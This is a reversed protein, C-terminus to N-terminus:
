GPLVILEFWFESLQRISDQFRTFNLPKVLYASCQHQYMDVIDKTSSSTTLVIVPIAVFRKDAKINALTERGDLVPLNVDLLILDPRTANVFQGEGRLYDLCKQGNDVHSMNVDFKIRDFSARTLEVDDYDDEVLLVEAPRGLETLKHM